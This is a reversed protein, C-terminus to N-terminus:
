RGRWKWIWPLTASPSGLSQCWAHGEAAGAALNCPSRSRSLTCLESPAPSQPGTGACRCPADSHRNWSRCRWLSGGRKGPTQTLAAWRDQPVCNNPQLKLYEHRGQRWQVCNADIWKHTNRGLTFTTDGFCLSILTSEWSNPRQLTGGLGTVTWSSGTLLHKRKREQQQAELEGQHLFTTKDNDRWWPRGRPGPLAPDRCQNNRGTRHAVLDLLCVLSLGLAQAPQSSCSCPAMQPGASWKLDAFRDKDWM